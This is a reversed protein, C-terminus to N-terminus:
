IGLRRGLYKLPSSEGRVSGRCTESVAICDPTYRHCDKIKKKQWLAHKTVRGREYLCGVVRQHIKMLAKGWILVGGGIAVITNKKCKIKKKGKQCSVSRKPTGGTVSKKPGREHAGGGESVAWRTGVTRRYSTWAESKSNEKTKEVKYNRAIAQQYERSKVSSLKKYGGNGGL